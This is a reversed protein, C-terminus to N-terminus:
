AIMRALRLYGKGELLVAAESVVTPKWWLLLGVYAACGVAATSFL